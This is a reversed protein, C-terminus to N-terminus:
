GSATGSRTSNAASSGAWADLEPGSELQIAYRIDNGQFGAV